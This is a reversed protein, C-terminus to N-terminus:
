GRELLARASLLEALAKTIDAISKSETMSEDSKIYDQLYSCLSGITNDIQAKDM